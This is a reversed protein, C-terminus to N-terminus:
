AYPDHQPDARGADVPQPEPIPAIGADVPQPEPIPAIGADVPQGNGYPDDPISADPPVPTCVVRCESSDYSACITECGEPLPGEIPQGEAEPDGERACGLACGLVLFLLLIRRM